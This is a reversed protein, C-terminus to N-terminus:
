ECLLIHCNITHACLLLIFLYYYRHHYLLLCLESSVIYIYVSPFSIHFIRRLLRFLSVGAVASLLPCVCASYIRNFLFSFHFVFALALVFDYEHMCSAPTPAQAPAPLLMLADIHLIYGGFVHFLKVSFHTVNAKSRCVQICRHVHSTFHTTMYPTHGSIILSFSFTHQTELLATCRM